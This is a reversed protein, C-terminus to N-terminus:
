YKVGFADAVKKLEDSKIQLEIGKLAATAPVWIQCFESISKDRQSYYYELVNDSSSRVRMLGDIVKVQAEDFNKGRLREAFAVRNTDYIKYLDEWDSRSVATLKKVCSQVLEAVRNNNIKIESGISSIDTSIEKLFKGNKNCYEKVLLIKKMDGLGLVLSELHLDCDDRSSIFDNSVLNQYRSDGLPQQPNWKIVDDVSVTMGGNKYLAVIKPDDLASLFDEKSWKRGLNALEKRPDDSTEKKVTDLKSDMSKITSSTQELTNAAGDIRDASNSISTTASQLGGQTAMQLGLASATLLLLTSFAISVSLVKHRLVQELKREIRGLVTPIEPATPTPPKGMEIAHVINAIQEIRIKLPSVIADVWQANAIFFELGKSPKLDRLRIPVITKGNRFANEIENTVPVSKNAEDTLLLIVITCDRIAEVISAGYQGGPPIDRPAIWCSVGREELLSRVEDAIKFNKSAHSVFVSRKCIVDSQLKESSEM